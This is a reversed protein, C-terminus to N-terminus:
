RQIVRLPKVQLKGSKRIRWRNSVIKEIQDVRKVSAEISRRQVHGFWSSHSIRGDKRIHSSGWNEKQYNHELRIKDQTIVSMWRLMRMETVSQNSKGKQM